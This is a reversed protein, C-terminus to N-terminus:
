LQSLESYVNITNKTCEQWSFCNAQKVGKEGMIKRLEDSELLKLWHILIDEISYPDILMCADGAVEPISTTNSTLVATGSAMAELVPLGFGEYLSPYIFVAAAAYLIPLDVEDVYGLSVAEGKASLNSITHHIDDSLWGKDGVVALPYAKRYDEPLNQFAHLLRTFNKRPEVTAVVLNFANFRLGFKQLVDNCDQEAYDKFKPEVGLYIASVFSKDVDLLEIIEQRQFESDTIIHNARRVVKHIEGKWFDVREKLHFEPHRLFSLDHITVVSKGSFPMLYYNPGHYIYDSLNNGDRRFRQNIYYRYARRALGKFPIKTRIASKISNNKSITSKALEDNINDISEVWGHTSFFKVEEVRPDTEINQALKLAYRGIGTLPPQVASVDFIVKM